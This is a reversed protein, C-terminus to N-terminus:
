TQVTDNHKDAHKSKERQRNIQRVRPILFKEVRNLIDKEILKVLPLM